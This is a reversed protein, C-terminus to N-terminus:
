STRQPLRLYVYFYSGGRRDSWAKSRDSLAFEGRLSMGFDRRVDDNDEPVMMFEKSEFSASSSRMLRGQMASMYRAWFYDLGTEADREKEM